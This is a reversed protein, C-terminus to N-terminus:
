VRDQGYLSPRIEHSWQRVASVATNGTGIYLDGESSVFGPQTSTRQM